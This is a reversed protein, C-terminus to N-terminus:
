NVTILTEISPRKYKKAQLKAEPIPYDCNLQKFALLRMNQHFQIQKLKDSAQKLYSDKFKNYYYLDNIPLKLSVHLDVQLLEIWPTIQSMSALHWCFLVTENKWVEMLRCILPPQPRTKYM